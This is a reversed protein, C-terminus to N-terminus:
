IHITFLARAILNGILKAVTRIKVNKLNIIKSCLQLIKVKKEETLSVTMTVANIVMGLFTIEQSPILLSKDVHITFGPSRLLEVFTISM